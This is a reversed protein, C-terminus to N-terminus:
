SRSASRQVRASQVRTGSSDESVRRRVQRKYVDLHTYSVPKLSDQELLTYRGALMTCDLDIEQLSDRVVEWENVGLGVAAVQGGRRLEDLARDRICM